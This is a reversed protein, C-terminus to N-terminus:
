LKWGTLVVVAETSEVLATILFAQLVASKVLSTVVNETSCEVEGVVGCNGIQM